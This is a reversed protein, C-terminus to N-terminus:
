DRLQPTRGRFVVHRRTERIVRYGLLHFIENVMWRAVRRSVVFTDERRAARHVGPLLPLLRPVGIRRLVASVRLWIPRVSRVLFYGDDGQAQYLPLFLRGRMPTPIPGDVDHAVIQGLKVPAFNEFGPTMRFDDEPAIARRYIVEFVPALGHRAEKIEARCAELDAADTDEPLCGAAVLSLWLAAEHLDVSHPDEHQGAEIGIGITGFEELYDVMADIKEEIGLVLPMGLKRGFQRTELSDGLTLFPPSASSTTHLDLIYVPGPAERIAPVLIELLAAQQEDEVSEPRELTRAVRRVNWGRNLDRDVFRQGAELAPLNGSLALFRGHFAPRREALKAIVRRVAHVGSPENGHIGAVCLVLPGRADDGYRGLIRREDLPRTTPPITPILSAPASRNM